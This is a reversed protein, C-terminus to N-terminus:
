GLDIGLGLRGLVGMDVAVEVPRTAARTIIWGGKRLQEGHAALRNAVALLIASFDDPVRAPELTRVERDNIRLSISMRERRYDRAPLHSEALVM